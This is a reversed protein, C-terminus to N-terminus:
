QKLHLVLLLRYLITLRIRFPSIITQQVGTTTLMLNKLTLHYKVYTNSIALSTNSTTYHLDVNSRHAPIWFAQVADYMMLGMNYDFVLDKDNPTLISKDVMVSPANLSLAQNVGRVIAFKGNAYDLGSVTINSANIKTTYLSTPSNKKYAMCYVNGAGIGILNSLNLNKISANDYVLAGNVAGFYGSVNIVNMVEVDASEDVKILVTAADNRSINVNSINILKIKSNSFIGIPNYSTNTKVTINNININDFHWTDNDSGRLYVSQYYTTGKVDEIFVDSLTKQFRQYLAVARHAYRTGTPHKCATINRVAWNSTDAADYKLENAGMQAAYALLAVLDDNTYGRINEIVINNSQGTIGDGNLGDGEDQWIEINKFRVTDCNMHAIAWANTQYLKVNEVVLNTVKHFHFGFGYYSNQLTTGYNRSMTSGNGYYKGGIITINENGNITDANEFIYQNCGAKLTFTTGKEIEITRNSPIKIGVDLQYDGKKIKVYTNNNIFNQLSQSIYTETPLPRYSMIDALSSTNAKVQDNLGTLTPVIVSVEVSRMSFSQYGYEARLKFSSVGSALPPTSYFDGPNVYVNTYDGVSLILRRTGTNTLTFQSQPKTYTYVMDSVPVGDIFFIVGDTNATQAVQPM